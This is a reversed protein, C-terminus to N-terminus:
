SNWLAGTARRLDTATEGLAFRVAEGALPHRLTAVLAGPGLERSARAYDGDSARLDDLTAVLDGTVLFAVSLEAQGVRKVLAAVDDVTLTAGSQALRSELASLAKKQARGMAKAVPKSAIVPASKSM